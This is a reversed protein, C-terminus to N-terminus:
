KSFCKALNFNFDFIIQFLKILHYNITLNKEEKYIFYVTLYIQKKYAVSSILIITKCIRLQVVIRM